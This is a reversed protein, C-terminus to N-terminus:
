LGQIKIIAGIKTSDMHEKCKTETISRHAEKHCPSHRYSVEEENGLVINHM